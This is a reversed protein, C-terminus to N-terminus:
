IDGRLISEVMEEKGKDTMSFFVDTLEHDRAIHCVAKIIERTTLHHIKRIESDIRQRKESIEADVGIAKSFVESTKAIENGIVSAADKIGDMMVTMNDQSRSRKKKKQNHLGGNRPSQMSDDIEELSHEEVDNNANNNVQERQIEEMMDAPGEANTGTARDKEFIILLDEYFPFSKNQWSSHSPHSQLYADWVPKEATICKKIPDWGFGSTNPTLQTFLSANKEEVYNLYGPKFGNEAKYTGLNTMDLLAKILKADEDYKWKRKNKGRGRIDQTLTDMKIDGYMREIINKASSHKMNFFEEPTSPQHGESWDNLHYRQGRFPALFGEGNTYGADVLYYSGRPVVLGNRRSIADRLVRGDAVSGEWGPLVYIFQMEQSCVGLVNTAIENKRTRYKPKDEVPVRVKIHTGDLAGLCGKFWKWREDASNDPVPEPKKLLEDQIRIIANIVKRFHRSITEASREFNANIIRQKQHHALIHVRMAVQEDVLM